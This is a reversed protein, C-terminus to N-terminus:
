YHNRGNEDPMNLYGAMVLDGRAVIEGQEGPLLLNGDADMIAVDTFLSRRGASALNDADTLETTSLHTIIQPAETQGYTAAIVPGFADQAERIRNPRMPAGGYIVNRLSPTRVNATRAADVLMTVMTPPSFFTTVDHEAITHLLTDPKTDEPFM